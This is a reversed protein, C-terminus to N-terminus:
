PDLRTVLSGTVKPDFVNFVCHNVDPSHPQGKIIAWLQSHPLWLAMLFINFVSLNLDETENLVSSLDNLANCSRMYRDLTVAFPCYGLGEIYEKPHLNIFISQTMCQQINLSIYKVHDHTNVIGSLPPSFCLLGFYMQKILRFM